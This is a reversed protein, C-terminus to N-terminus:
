PLQRVAASGVLGLQEGAVLADRTYQMSLAARLQWDGSVSRM